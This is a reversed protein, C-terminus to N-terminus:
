RPILGACSSPIKLSVSKGGTCMWTASGKNGDSLVWFSQGDGLNFSEISNPTMRGYTGNANPPEGRGHNAALHAAM